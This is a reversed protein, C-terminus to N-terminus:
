RDNGTKDKKCYCVCLRYQVESEGRQHIPRSNGFTLKQQNVFLGTRKSSAAKWVIGLTLLCSVKYFITAM